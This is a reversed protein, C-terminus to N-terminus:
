TRREQRFCSEEDGHTDLFTFVTELLVLGQELMM